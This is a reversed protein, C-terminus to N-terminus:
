YIDNHTDISDKNVNKYVSIKNDDQRIKITAKTPTAMIMGLFLTIFGGMLMLIGLGQPLFSDIDFLTDLGLVILVVGVIILFVEM